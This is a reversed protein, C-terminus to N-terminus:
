LTAALSAPRFDGESASTSDHSSCCCDSPVCDGDVSAMDNVDLEIALPQSSHDRAKPLRSRQNENNFIFCKSLFFNDFLMKNTVISIYRFTKTVYDDSSTVKGKHFLNANNVAHATAIIVLSLEMTFKFRRFKHFIMHHVKEM